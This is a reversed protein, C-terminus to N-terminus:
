KYWRLKNNPRNKSDLSSLPGVDGKRSLSTKVEQWYNDGKKKQNRKRLRQLWNSVRNDIKLTLVRIRSLIKQLFVETSFNRIPTSVISKEMAVLFRKKLNARTSVEPLEVLAPIKRFLIIGMGLISLFLIVLAILDAM